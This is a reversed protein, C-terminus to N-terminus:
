EGKNIQEMVDREHAEHIDKDCEPCIHVDVKSKLTVRLTDKTDNVENCMVCRIKM